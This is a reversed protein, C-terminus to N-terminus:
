IAYVRSLLVFMSSKKEPKGPTYQQPIYDTNAIHVIVRCFLSRLQPSQSTYLMERACLMRGERVLSCKIKYNLRTSSEFSTIYVFALFVERRYVRGDPFVTRM